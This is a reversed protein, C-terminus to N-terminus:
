VSPRPWRRNRRLWKGDLSPLQVGVRARFAKVDGHRRAPDHDRIDESVVLVGHGGVQEIADVLLVADVGDLPRLFDTESGALIVNDANVFLQKALCYDKFIEQSSFFRLSSSQRTYGKRKRRCFIM